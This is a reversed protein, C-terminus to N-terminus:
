VIVIKLRTRLPAPDHTRVYAGTVSLNEIYENAWKGRGQTEFPLFADQRASIRRDVEIVVFPITRQIGFRQRAFRPTRKPPWKWDTITRAEFSGVVRGCCGRRFIGISFIRILPARSCLRLFMSTSIGRSLNTTSVPREPEPFLESANSVM